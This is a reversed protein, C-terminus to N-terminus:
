NSTNVSDEAKYFSNLKMLNWKDISSKLAQAVLTRKLFHGGTVILELSKRVKEKTQNLTDPKINLDKIEKLVQGKHL